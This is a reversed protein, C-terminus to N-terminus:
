PYSNYVSNEWWSISAGQTDRRAFLTLGTRIFQSAACPARLQRLYPGPPHSQRCLGLHGLEYEVLLRWQSGPRLDMAGSISDRCPSLRHGNVVVYREASAVGVIGCVLVIVAILVLRKSPM